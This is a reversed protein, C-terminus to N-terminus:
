AEEEKKGSILDLFQKAKDYEGKTYNYNDTAAALLAKFLQEGSLDCSFEALTDAFYQTAKEFSLLEAESVLKKVANSTDHLNERSDKTAMPEEISAVSQHERYWKHWADLTEMPDKVTSESPFNSDRDEELMTGSAITKYTKFIELPKGLFTGSTYPGCIKSSNDM